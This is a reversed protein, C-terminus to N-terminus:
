RKSHIFNRKEKDFFTFIMTIKERGGNGYMVFKDVSLLKQFSNKIIFFLSFVFFLNPEKLFVCLNCFISFEFLLYITFESLMLIVNKTNEFIIKLLLNLFCSGFM